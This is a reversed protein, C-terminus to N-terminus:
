SALHSKHAPEARGKVLPSDGPQPRPAHGDGEMASPSLPPSQERGGTLGSDNAVEASHSSQAALQLLTTNLFIGGDPEEAENILAASPSRGSEQSILQSPVSTAAQPLLFMFRRRHQIQYRGMERCLVFAAAAGHSTNQHKNGLQPTCATEPDTNTIPSLSPSHEEWGGM